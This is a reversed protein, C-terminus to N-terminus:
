VEGCFDARSLFSFRRLTFIKSGRCYTKQSGKALLKESKTLSFAKKKSPGLIANHCDVCGLCLGFKRANGKQTIVLYVTCILM